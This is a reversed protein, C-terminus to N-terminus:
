RFAAVWRLARDDLAACCIEGSARNPRRRCPSTTDPLRRARERQSAFLEVGRRDLQALRDGAERARHEVHMPALVPPEARADRAPPALLDRVEEAWPM